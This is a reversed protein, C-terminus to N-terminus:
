HMILNDSESNSGPSNVVQGECQLHGSLGELPCSTIREEEMYFMCVYHKIGLWLNLGSCINFVLPPTSIYM